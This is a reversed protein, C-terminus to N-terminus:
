LKREIERRREKKREKKRERVRELDAPAGSGCSAKAQSLRSAQQAM